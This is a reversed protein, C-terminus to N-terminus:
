SCYLLYFCNIPNRSLPCWLIPMLILKTDLARTGSRSPMSCPQPFSRNKNLFAHLRNINDFSIRMIQGKWHKISPNRFEFFAFHFIDGRRHRVGIESSILQIRKRHGSELPCRRSRRPNRPPSQAKFGLLEYSRLYQYFAMM